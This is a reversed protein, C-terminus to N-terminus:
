VLSSLSKLSWCWSIVFMRLYCDYFLKKVNSGTASLGDRLHKQKLQVIDLAANNRSRSIWPSVRHRTATLLDCRSIDRKSKYVCTQETPLSHVFILRFITFWFMTMRVTLLANTDPTAKFYFLFSPIYHPCNKPVLFQGCLFGDM